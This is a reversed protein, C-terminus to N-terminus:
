RRSTSSFGPEPDQFPQADLWQVVERVIRQPSRAWRYHDARDGLQQQDLVVKAVRASAFKDTVAAMGAEPAFPDDAMRLSLVPGRYHGIPADIDRNIGSAQYINSRALALWDHMLTRAERGGFGIKEGPYYGWLRNVIPILRCLLRLRFQDFGRYAGIWPSGCAAVIVGHVAEPMQGAMIASYHGGLSHGMLLVPLAPAQQRQWRILSPIDHEIVDAFGFDTQRSARLASEGIGRHEMLTINLGSAALAKGLPLYFGAPVGLAPMLLLSARATAPDAPLRIVPIPYGDSAEVLTFM